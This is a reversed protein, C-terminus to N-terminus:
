LRCSDITLLSHHSHHRWSPAQSAQNVHLLLPAPTGPTPAGLLFSPAALDSVSFALVPAALPEKLLILLGWEGRLFAIKLTLM